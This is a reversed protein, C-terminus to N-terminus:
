TFRINKRYIDRIQKFINNYELSRYDPYTWPYPEFNGNRFGLAVEGYIGKKLPIRHVNDKTSALVLHSLNLIGPDLNVKRLLGESSKSAFQKELYNTHIKIDALEDPLILNEFALFFRKIGHGMERCYYSTYSFPIVMSKFDITGFENNMTKAIEGEGEKLTSLVAIILKHKKFEKIDGM